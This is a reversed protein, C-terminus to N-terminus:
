FAGRRVDLMTRKKLYRDVFRSLVARDGYRYLFNPAPPLETGKLIAEAEREGLLLAADSDDDPKSVFRVEAARTFRFQLWQTEGQAETKIVGLAVKGSFGAPGKDRETLSKLLQLLEMSM